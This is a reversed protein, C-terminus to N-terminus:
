LTNELEHTATVDSFSVVYIVDLLKNKKEFTRVVPLAEIRPDRSLVQYIGSGLLGSAGLILCKM